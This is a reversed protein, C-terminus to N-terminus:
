KELLTKLNDLSTQMDKGLMKDLNFLVHMVKMPYKKHGSFSWKVATETPNIAETKFTAYSTGNWPKLFRIENDIQEGDILKIIEQEGHGVQKNESQWAYVFGVTGDTGKFQKTMAPDTMVWKNYYDQNKITKLYDYVQQNPQHVIVEKAITFDAPIFIAMVFPIAIIALIIYLVTM